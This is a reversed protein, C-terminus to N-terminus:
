IGEKCVRISEQAEAFFAGQEWLMKFEYAEADSRTEIHNVETQCFRCYMKKKHFAGHLKSTSRPLTWGRNGCNMCYFDHFVMRNGKAM